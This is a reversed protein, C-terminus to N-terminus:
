EALGHQKLLAGYGPDGSVPEFLYAFVTMDLGARNAHTEIGERLLALTEDVQGLGAHIWAKNVPSVHRGAGSLEDLRDLMQRAEADRGMRAYVHGLLAVEDVVDGEMLPIQKQLHEVAQDYQGEGTYINASAWHGGVRTEESAIM